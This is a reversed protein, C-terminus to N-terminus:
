RGGTDCAAQASQCAKEEDGYRWLIYRKIESSYTM